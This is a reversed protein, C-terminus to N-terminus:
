RSSVEPVIREPADEVWVIRPRFSAFRKKYNSAQMAAEIAKRATPHIGFSVTTSTTVDEVVFEDPAIERVRFVM